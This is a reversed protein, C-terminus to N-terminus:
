RTVAWLAPYTAAYAWIFTNLGMLLAMITHFLVGSCFFAVRLEDPVILVLPFACEWLLTTWSLFWALRPRPAVHRSLWRSGYARTSLLDTISRGSRWSPSALKSVGAVLYSWCVTAAIFWLGASATLRDRGLVLALWAAGCVVFSISDSGVRGVGGSRLLIYLQTVVLLSLGAAFSLSPGCAFAVAGAAFLRLGIVLLLRRSGACLVDAWRRLRASKPLFSQRILPWGLPGHDDFQRRTALHELCDLLVGIACIRLMLQYISFPTAM